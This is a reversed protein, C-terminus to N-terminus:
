DDIREGFLGRIMWRPAEDFPIEQEEWDPFGIMLWGEDTIKRPKYDPNMDIDLSGPSFHWAYIYDDYNSVSSMEEADKYVVLVDGLYKEVFATKSKVKDFHLPSDYYDRGSM